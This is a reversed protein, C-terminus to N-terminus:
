FCSRGNSPNRCDWIERRSDLISPHLPQDTSRCTRISHRAAADTKRGRRRAGSRVLQLGYALLFTPLYKIQRRFFVSLWVLCICHDRWLGPLGWLRRRSRHQAGIHAHACHSHPALLSPRSRPTRLSAFVLCLPSWSTCCRLLKFFFDHALQCLKASTIRKEVEARGQARAHV